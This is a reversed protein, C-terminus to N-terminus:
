KGMKKGKFNYLIDSLPSEYLYQRYIGEGVEDGEERGQVTGQM